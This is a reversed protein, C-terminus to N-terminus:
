FSILIAFKLMDKRSASWTQTLYSIYTLLVLIIGRLDTTQLLSLTAWMDQFTSESVSHWHRHAYGSIPQSVTGKLLSHGPIPVTFSFIFPLHLANWVSSSVCMWVPITNPWPLTLTKSRPFASFLVPTFWPHLCLHPEPPQYLNPHKDFLFHVHSFFKLHNELLPPKPHSCHPFLNKAAMSSKDANSLIRPLVFLFSRAPSYIFVSGITHSSDDQASCLFDSFLMCLIHPRRSCSFKLLLIGLICM